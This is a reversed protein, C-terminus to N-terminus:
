LSALQCIQLNLSEFCTVQKIYQPMDPCIQCAPMGSNAVNFPKTWSNKYQGLCSYSQAQHCASRALVSDKEPCRKGSAASLAQM